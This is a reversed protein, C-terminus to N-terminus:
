LAQGLQSKISALFSRIFPQFRQTDNGYVVFHLTNRYTSLAILIGPAYQIPGIGYAQILPVSGFDCLSEDIVSFNTFNIFSLGRSAAQQYRSRIMRGGRVAGVALLILAGLGPQEVKLEDMRTKVRTLTERFSEGPVQALRPFVAGSMNGIVLRKEAPLYRRMDVPVMVPYPSALNDGARDWIVRYLATLLTDNITAGAEKAVIRVRGFQEPDLSAHELFVSSSDFPGALLAPGPKPLDAALAAKFLALPSFRRFIQGFGRNRNVIPSLKGKGYAEAFLYLLSKLGSADALVHDVKFCLMDRDVSHLLLLKLPLDKEPDCLTNVFHLIDSQIQGSGDQVSLSPLCDPRQVWRFRWDTRQVTCTLMPLAEHLLRLSTKLRDLDLCNAFELVYTVQQDALLRAHYINVDGATFPFSRPAASRSLPQTNM